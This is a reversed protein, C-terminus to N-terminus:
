GTRRRFALPLLGVGVASLLLPWYDAAEDLASDDFRDSTFAFALGATVLIIAALLLLRPDRGRELLYTLLITLGPVALVLPWWDTAKPEADIGLVLVALAGAGLWVLLGVFLLGREERGFLLAHFIATFALTLVLGGILMADSIDPLDEVDQHRAILFVGALLVFLALPLTSLQTRLRRRFHEARPQRLRETEGLTAPITASFPEAYDRDTEDTEAEADADAGMEAGVNAEPEAEAESAAIDAADYAELAELIEDFQEDSVSRELDEVDKEADLGPMEPMTEEELAENDEHEENSLLDHDDAM